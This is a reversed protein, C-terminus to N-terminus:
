LQLIQGLGTELNWNVLLSVPPSTPHLGTLKPSAEFGNCFIPTHPRWCQWPSKTLFELGQHCSCARWGCSADCYGSFSVLFILYPVLQMLTTGLIGFALKNLKVLWFIKRWNIMMMLTKCTVSVEVLKFFLGIVSKWFLIYEISGM